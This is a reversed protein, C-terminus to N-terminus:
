GFFFLNIIELVDDRTIIGDFFDQIAQIVEDRSIMEDHNADYRDGLEGLSVDTVSINVTIADSAGSPDIATVTVTYTDLVEYDLTTGSAVAIQGTASDM